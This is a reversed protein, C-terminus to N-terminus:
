YAWSGIMVIINFVHSPIALATVVLFVLATAVNISRGGLYLLASVAGLLVQGAIVVNTIVGFAGWDRTEAMSRLDLSLIAMYEHHFLTGVIASAAALLIMPTAFYWPTPMALANRVRGGVCNMPAVVSERAFRVTPDAACASKGRRRLAFVRVRRRKRVSRDWAEGQRM